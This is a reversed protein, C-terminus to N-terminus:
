IKNLEVEIARFLEMVVQPVMSNGLATIANKRWEGFPITLSPIGVSLAHTISTGNM